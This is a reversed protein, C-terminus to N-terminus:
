EVARRSKKAAAPEDAVVVRLTAKMDLLRQLLAENGAQKAADAPWNGQKPRRAVDAKLALLTTLCAGHDEKADQECLAVLSDCPAAKNACPVRRRVFRGILESAPRNGAMLAVEAPVYGKSNPALPHVGHALLLRCDELGDARKACLHLANRATRPITPDQYAMAHIYTCLKTPFQRAAAMPGAVLQPFTTPGVYGTMHRLLAPLTRASAASALLSMTINRNRASAPVSSVFQQMIMPVLSQLAGTNGSAMQAQLIDIANIVVLRNCRCPSASRDCLSCFYDMVSEAVTKTVTGGAASSSSSSGSSSGGGGAKKDMRGAIHLAVMFPTPLAAEIATDTFDVGMEEFTGFLSTETFPILAALLVVKVSPSLINCMSPIFTNIMQVPAGQMLDSGSRELRQLSFRMLAVTARHQLVHDPGHTQAAAMRQLVFTFLDVNESSQACSLLDRHTSNTWQLAEDPFAAHAERIRPMDVAAVWSWYEAPQNSPAAAGDADGGFSQQQGM